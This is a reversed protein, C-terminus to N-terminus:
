FIRQQKPLSGVSGINAVVFSFLYQNDDRIVNNIRRVEVSFGCCDTNYSLQYLSFTVRQLRIDYFVDAAANLGRRLSNGYGGGFFIQDTAPLLPPNTVIATDGLTFFYKAYRVSANVSHDLFKKRLPDYDARYEIGFFSYPNITLASTVPSYARPGDLFTYPTIEEQPLNVNLQGPVISGGFTPNFYRAQRLRWTIVERVEGNKDKKYIRNTLGLTIQNTDAVIDTGDFQIVKQFQNVGTVYKYQAEAEIVHKIKNGLHLWQAPSYTREISPLRFDLVFDTDARFLNASAIAAATPTNSSYRSGYDTAEFSVSPYLSFGKFSFSSSLTPRLDTRQMVGTNIVSDNRSLLGSSANFSFWLPLNGQLIQQLRSSAEVSPFKQLVIPKSNTSFSEYVQNRSFVFDLSYVDNDFHRRLFGISNQQPYFNNTFAAAFIFSSLYNYDILGTFGWIQTRGSVNFETGGQKTGAGSQGSPVGQDQVTYLNFALQSVANPKAHFDFTHAPGRLSFYEFIYDMDYSRNIAWYYGGGYIWGRTTSHGFNPTLFGSQRTNKGLARYFYPLYLIPIHRFRFVSHRAIARQGPIIDFVPAEFAWWPKPVRCDTIFGKHLILRTKIRDAWQGEYYFPNSTTLLGPGTMIKAPTTGNVVYFKGEETKLNYEAHDANLIDGTAYHELHVHGRAYAWATDSNYDIEDASITMESTRVQAAGKLYKWEGQSDETVSREIIENQPPLDNKPYSRVANQSFSPLSLSLALSVLLFFLKPSFHELCSDCKISSTTTSIPQKAFSLRLRSGYCTLGTHRM